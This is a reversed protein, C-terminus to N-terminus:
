SELTQDGSRRGFGFKVRGYFAPLNNQIKPEDEFLESGELLARRFYVDVVHRSDGNHVFTTGSWSTTVDLGLIESHLAPSLKPPEDHLVDWPNDIGWVKKRFCQSPDQMMTM